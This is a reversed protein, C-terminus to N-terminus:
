PCRAGPGAACSWGPDGNPGVEIGLTLGGRDGVDSSGMLEGGNAYIAWDRTQPVFFTVLQKAGPPVTTPRAIGTWAPQGIPRGIVGGLGMPAVELIVPAHSLNMVTVPLPRTGAPPLPGSFCGTVLLGSFTAVMALGVLRVRPTGHDTQQQRPDGM